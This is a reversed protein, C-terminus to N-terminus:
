GSLKVGMGRSVYTEISTHAYKQRIQDVTKNREWATKADACSKCFCSLNKRSETGGKSKPVIHECVTGPTVISPDGLLCNLCLHNADAKVQPAIETRWEKTQYIRKGQRSQQQQYKGWSAKSEHQKCYGHRETTRNGCGRERCRKPTAAPM